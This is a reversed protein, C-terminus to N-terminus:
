WQICNRGNAKARYLAEDAQRILADANLCRAKWDAGITAIGMSTTVTLLQGDANMPASSLHIRVREAVPGLNEQSCNPAIMLFEEGGYRGIRDYPRMAEKMRHAAERLVADGAAHGYRDNIQKFGDLDAMVVGLTQGERAGREMEQNLSELIAARNLLGTLADYLAQTRLLTHLDLIRAAVRLRAALQEEDFPKTIFDDAGADMADLYNTKGGRATLLIVYTYPATHQGTHATRIHRCLELGDMDPMMWDSILLPYSTEQLASWAEEGNAAVHVEHGQKRLTAALVLRSVADDEAILINM